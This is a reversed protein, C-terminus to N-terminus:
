RRGEVSALYHRCDPAPLIRELARLRTTASEVDGSDLLYLARRVRAAVAKLAESDQDEIQQRDTVAGM